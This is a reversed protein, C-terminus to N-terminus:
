HGSPAEEIVPDAATAPAGMKDAGRLRGTDNLFFSRRGSKTYEDPTAALEYRSEKGNEGEPVIRYRITYGGTHGKVMEADLLGAADPSIGEKPAPGLEALTDPLKEFANRYTDIAASIKWMANIADSERDAMEQAEWEPQLQAFDLMLIGLSLLKWGNNTRVLGFDIQRDPKVDVPVFALNQDVRASGVRIVGSFAPTECHLVSHGTDDTSLLPRGADELLVLRKLLAVQQAPALQRFFTANATTLYDPFKAADQHCAVALIETLTAAPGSDDAAPRAAPASQQPTGGAQPTASAALPLIGALALILILAPYDARGNVFYKM